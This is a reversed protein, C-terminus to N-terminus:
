LMATQKKGQMKLDLVMESISRMLLPLNTPISLINKVRKSSITYSTFFILVLFLCVGDVEEPILVSFSKLIDIAQNESLIITKVSIKWM